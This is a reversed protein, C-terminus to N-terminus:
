GKNSKGTNTQGAQRTVWAGDDFTWFAIFVLSLWSAIVWIGFWIGASIPNKIKGAIKDHKGIVHNYVYCMAISTLGVDLLVNIFVQILIGSTLFYLFLTMLVIGSVFGVTTILVPILGTNKLSLYLNGIVVSGSQNSRWWRLQQKLYGITTAPNNTWARAEFNNFVKWSKKLGIGMCVITTLFTDEGSRIHKVGLIQRDLLLPICELFVERRFSTIQGSLVRSTRFQNEFVKTVIYFLFFLMGQMQTWISDNLNKCLVFGCVGGMNPDKYCSVIETITNTAVTTDSDVTFVIEGKAKQVIDILTRSKGENIENKWVVVNQPYADRMVQLWHFTDDHSCDDVAIIEIKDTPYDSAMISHITDCVIKGENFSPIMFTVMPKWDWDRVVDFPTKNKRHTALHFYGLWKSYARLTTLLAIAIFFWTMM